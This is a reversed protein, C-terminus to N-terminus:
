RLLTRELGFLLGLLGALILTTAAITKAYQLMNPKRTFLFGLLATAALIVGAVLVLRLGILM